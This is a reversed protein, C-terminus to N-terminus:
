FEDETKKKSKRRLIIIVILIVCLIGGLGFVDSREDIREVAGIAQEPSMYSPTGLFSGSRTKSNEAGFIRDM